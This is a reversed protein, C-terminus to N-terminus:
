WVVERADFVPGDRCVRSMKDAGDKNTKCVCVLCAGVGCGMREELSTECYVGAREATEAVARLMARPGCALVATYNGTKLLEEAPLTVTGRLGLSGDETTIFVNDCVSEFNEALIAGNANRFGLVATVRGRARRAAFLLPAAGLGGGILLINGSVESFGHGLPGNIDVRRGPESAALWKTGEGRAEFVVTLREGYVDSIGFPRRLPRSRGCKIHVFQGPSAAAAPEPADFTISFIGRRLPRIDAVTFISRAAM